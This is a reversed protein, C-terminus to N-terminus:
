KLNMKELGASSLESGKLAEFYNKKGGQFMNFGVTHSKIEGPHSQENKHISNFLSCSLPPPPTLSLFSLAFM